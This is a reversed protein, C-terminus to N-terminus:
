SPLAAMFELTDWVTVKNKRVFGAPVELVYRAPRSPAYAKLNLLTAPQVDQEIHIIRKDKNAWVIDIPFRMFAMWIKPYFEFKFDFLMGSNEPLSKRFMLGIAHSLPNDAIDAKVKISNIRVVVSKRPLGQAPM